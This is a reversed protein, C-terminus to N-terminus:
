GTSPAQGEAKGEDDQVPDIDAVDALADADKPLVLGEPLRDLREYRQLTTFALLYTAAIPSLEDFVVGAKELALMDRSSPHIQVSPGDDFSVVVPLFSSAM